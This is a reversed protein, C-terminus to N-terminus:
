RRGPRASTTSRRSGNACRTRSCLPWADEVEGRVLTVGAAMLEAFITPREPLMALTGSVHFGGIMVACGRTRFRLALDCARPFQSTQVGVLALVVRTDSRRALRTMRREPVAQVSEDCLHIRLAVDGLVGRRRVDESLAHLCALTNTPLVGWLHRVLYGDDDYTTPRVLFLELRRVRGTSMRRLYRARRPPAVDRARDTTGGRKVPRREERSLKATRARLPNRDGLNRVARGIGAHDERVAVLEDFLDAFPAHADDVAGAVQLEIRHDRHLHQARVDGVVALQELAETTLRLQQRSEAVRADDPEEVEPAVAVGVIEDGLQQRSLVQAVVESVVHARGAARECQTLDHPDAHLHRAREAVRVAEVRRDDVAVDLRAVDEDFVVAADHHRVKADGLEGAVAAEVEGAAGPEHARHPVARGLLQAVVVRDVPPRVDVREPEDEVLEVRPLVEVLPQRLLLDDAAHEVIRRRQRRAEHVRLGREGAHQRACDRGVRFPTM